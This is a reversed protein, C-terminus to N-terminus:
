KHRKLDRHRIEVNYGEQHLLTKLREATFVSRHKGGTCGIAITLYSKGEEVYRPLLPLILNKLHEFFPAFCPDAEIYAAVKRNKGSLARLAEIYYPNQLFRVDFVLDAERPLGHRFSFSTVVLSFTLEGEVTFNGRIWRKLDAITFDSSDVVIDAYERLDGIISREHQISDSLLRDSSIPHKRRTETFRRQLVEDECDLFLIKVELDESQQLPIIKEKFRAVSFDRSRVDVGIALLKPRARGPKALLPALSLPINDVAEFGLDELTKLAVSKGAGSMGTVFIIKSKAM